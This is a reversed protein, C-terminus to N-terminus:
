PEQVPLYARRIAMDMEIQPNHAICFNSAQLYVAKVGGHM